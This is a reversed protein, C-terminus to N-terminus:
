PLLKSLPSEKPFPAEPPKRNMAGKQDACLHVSAQPSAEPVAEDSREYRRLTRRIAEPKRGECRRFPSTMALEDKRRRLLRQSEEGSRPESHSFFPAFCDRSVAESRECHCCFPHLLRAKSRLIVAFPNARFPLGPGMVAGAIACFSPELRCFCPM